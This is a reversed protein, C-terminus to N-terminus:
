ERVEACYGRQGENGGPVICVCSRGCDAQFFCTKSNCQRCSAPAPNTVADTAYFAAGLALAIFAAQITRNM